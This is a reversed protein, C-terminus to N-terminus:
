VFMYVSCLMVVSHGVSCGLSWVWVTKTFAGTPPVCHYGWELLHRQLTYNLDIKRHYLVVQFRGVV